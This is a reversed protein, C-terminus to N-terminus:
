IVNYGGILFFEYSATGAGAVYQLSIRDNTIDARLIAGLGAQDKSYAVGGCQAFLTFNSAHALAIGLETAVSASTVDITIRGFFIVDNGIRISTFDSATSAAVNTVNTLTPTAASRTIGLNTRGGSATTAGLGGSLLPLAAALGSINGGSINVFSAYQLAMTGLGQVQAVAIAKSKALLM